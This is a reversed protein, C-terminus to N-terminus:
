KVVACAVRGGAGGIPQSIHDDRKAHIVLATGDADYIEDFTTLNSFAEYGASGDAAAWINPLDGSEPGIPNLLGHGNKILGMHGGSMKFAGLDDCNGIQHLHLGHWGPTLGGAQIEVEIMVGKPGDIGSLSGIVAGDANIVDGSLTPLASVDFGELVTEADSMQMEPMADQAPAGSCATLPLLSALLAKRIM